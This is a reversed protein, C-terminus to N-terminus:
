THKDGFNNAPSLQGKALSFTKSSATTAIFGAPIIQRITYTGFPVAFKYNGNADTTTQVDFFDLEGNNNLDLFVIVGKIGSETADKITNGNADNFVTGTILATTTVLFNASSTVAASVTLTQPSTSSVRTGAPLVPRVIYKAPKLNAFLYAGSSASVTSAEGADLHGNNNADLFVTIGGLGTENIDKRGSGNIDNIVSGSVAGPTESVLTIAASLGVADNVNSNTNAASNNGVIFQLRDGAALSFSTRSFTEKVGYAEHGNFGTTNKSLTTATTNHLQIVSCDSNAQQLNEFFASINYTGTTPATFQVVSFQPSGANNSGGPALLLVNSPWILPPSGGLNLVAGATLKRAVPGLDNTNFYYSVYTAGTAATTKFHPYKTFAGGPAIETGYQWPNGSKPQTGTANFDALANYTTSLLRRPELPEIHNRM